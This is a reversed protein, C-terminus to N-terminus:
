PTMMEPTLNPDHNLVYALRYEEPLVALDAPLGLAVLREQEALYEDEERVNSTTPVQATQFCKIWDGFATAQATMGKAVAILAQSDASNQKYAAEHISELSALVKDLMVEQHLRERHREERRNFWSM